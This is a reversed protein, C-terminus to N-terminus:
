IAPVPFQNPNGLSSLTLSGVNSETNLGAFAGNGGTREVQIAHALTSTISLSGSVITDGASTVSLGTGANTILQVGGAAGIATLSLNTNTGGASIQGTHVELFGAQTMRLRPTGNLDALRFEDETTDSQLSWTNVGDRQMQIYDFEAAPALVDLILGNLTTVGALSTTGLVTLDQVTISDGDQIPAQWAEGNWIEFPRREGIPALSADIWRTVDDSGNAMRVDHLGARYLGSSIENTFTIGPTIVTGDANQFPVLMGGRGNRDLSNTIEAALDGMTPNAWSTSIITGTAVPNGAPLTYNGSSDRAM